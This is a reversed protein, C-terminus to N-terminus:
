VENNNHKNLETIYRIIESGLILWNRPSTKIADIDGIKIERYITDRSVQLLNAVINIRYLRNPIIKTQIALMTNNDYV